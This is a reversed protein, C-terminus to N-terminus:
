DYNSKFYINLRKIPVTFSLIVVSYAFTMAGNPLPSSLQKHVNPIDKWVGMRSIFKKVKHVLGFKDKSLIDLDM